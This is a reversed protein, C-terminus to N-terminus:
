VAGSNLTRYLSFDSLAPEITKITRADTVLEIGAIEKGQWRALANRDGRLYLGLDRLYNSLEKRQKSSRTNVPVSNGQSDPIYLTASYRDGKTARFKGNSVRLASPFYKKVTAPKIGESKAARTLSLTSDRRMASVVHLAGDRAAESRKPLSAHSLNSPRGSRRQKRQVEHRKM